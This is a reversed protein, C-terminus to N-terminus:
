GFVDPSNVTFAKSKQFCRKVAYESIEIRELCEQM